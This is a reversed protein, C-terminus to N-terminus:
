AGYRQPGTISKRLSSLWDVHINLLSYVMSAVEGYRSTPNTVNQQGKSLWAMWHHRIHLGLTWVFAKEAASPLSGSLARKNHQYMSSGILLYEGRAQIPRVRRSNNEIWWKSQNTSHQLTGAKTSIIGLGEDAIGRRKDPNSLQLLGPGLKLNVHRAPVHEGPLIISM